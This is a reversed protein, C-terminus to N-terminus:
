EDEDDDSNFSLASVVEDTNDGDDEKIEAMMVSERNVSVPSPLKGGLRLPKTSADPASLLDTNPAFIRTKYKSLAASKHATNIEQMDYLDQMMDMDKSMDNQAGGNAGGDEM